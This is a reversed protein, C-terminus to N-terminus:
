VEWWYREEIVVHVNQLLPTGSVLYSKIEEVAGPSGRNKGIRKEKEVLLKLSKLNSFPSTKHELLGAEMLDELSSACVTLSVANRVGFFFKMLMEELKDTQYYHGHYVLVNARQLSPLNIDLFHCLWGFDGDGSSERYELVQLNPASLKLKVMDCDIGEIKLYVLKSGSIEIVSGISDDYAGNFGLGSLYFTSLNPFNSETVDFCRFDCDEIRLSTVFPFCASSLGSIDFNALTLTELTGCGSLASLPASFQRCDDRHRLSVFRVGHRIAYKLAWDRLGVEDFDSSSAQETDHGDDYHISLDLSRVEYNQHHRLLAYLLFKEFSRPSSYYLTNFRLDSVSTWLNKWRKSLVSTRAAFKTDELSSLIRQIIVEPLDSIRDKSNPKAAPNRKSRRNEM